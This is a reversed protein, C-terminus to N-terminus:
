GPRSVGSRRLVSESYALSRVHLIPDDSPEIGAVVRTPDFVLVDGDHERDFALGTISLTGVVVRDRDAPWAATADDVPDGDAAISVSLTFTAPAAQLRERLDDQLFDPAREMAAGDDLTEVGADPTWHYRVWRAARDPALWRFAHLGNYATALYSAVPPQMVAAQVAPLAEPHAEFHAGLKAMDPQGTEPDPRRALTLALFDEPTRAIFSPLTVAVIDTTAGDDLYIKVAMGRGDRAGDHATPDGSGNSFRVHARHREGQLHGATSLGAAEPTATFTATTLTGKAHVARTSPHSGFNANLADIIQQPTAM